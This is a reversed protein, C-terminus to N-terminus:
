PSPWNANVFDIYDQQTIETWDTADPFVDGLFQPPNALSTFETVFNSREYLEAYVYALIHMCPTDPDGQKQYYKGAEFDAM